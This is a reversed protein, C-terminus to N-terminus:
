APVAATDGALEALLEAVASLTRYSTVRLGPRDPLGFRERMRQVMETQKISDVGLDAELDVEDTFVDAPYDLVEAYTQRLLELLQTRPPLATGRETAPQPAAPRPRRPAPVAPEAWGAIAAAFQAPDVRTKLPASTNLGPLTAAALDTLISRPGSEVFLTVDDGALARIAAGFRVPRVLHGAVAAKLDDDLDYFRGAIPSYVRGRPARAPIAEIRRAFAESVPLLMRNHFPYRAPLRQSHITLAKAVEELAALEEEPGSLVTQVPTNEVAVAARWVAAAAVLSRARDAGIRLSLLGGAPVPCEGFAKDREAVLRAGSAVDFAGAATLAAIEGLSQGAVADVAIGHGETLMRYVAVSSAYIALHMRAADREVLEDVGPSGPDFLLPSVPDWGYDRAVEDVVSVTSTIQEYSDRLQAFVGPLHAGQGPFLLVTRSNM